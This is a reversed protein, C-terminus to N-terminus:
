CDTPCGRTVILLTSISVIKFCTSCNSAAAPANGASASCATSFSSLTTSAPIDWQNNSSANTEQSTVTSRNRTSTSPRELARALAPLDRWGSVRHFGKEVELLAYALWRSAQDTEARFRTVRGIKRRTNRFSNEIINTSLLSKHLTSPVNLTHLAILEEGAEHLSALAEANKKALFKELEGTVERAAAEGEVERLRKFLRALEGWDRKSLRARINREKHILCRQIVAEPFFQM